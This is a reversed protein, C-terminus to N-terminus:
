LRCGGAAMYTPHAHLPHIAIGYSHVLPVYAGYCVAALAFGLLSLKFLRSLSRWGDRVGDRVGLFWWGCDDIFNRM